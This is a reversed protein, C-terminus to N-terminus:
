KTRRFDNSRRRRYSGDVLDLQRIQDSLKTKGQKRKAVQYLDDNPINLRMAAMMMGSTIARSALYAAWADWCHM